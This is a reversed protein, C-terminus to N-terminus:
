GATRKFIFVEPHDFLTFTFEADEDDISWGFLTPLAQLHHVLQFGLRGAFLDRYYQRVVGHEADTLHEYLEMFTDDMVIYNALALRSEIYARKRAAPLAPDYLYRYVDLTHLRYYDVRTTQPGWGVYDRYFSPATLYSGTPPINHSPEVLISAGQPVTEQLVRSAQLRADPSRYINSYATAYGISAILVAATAVLGLRRWRPQGVLQGSLAGAAVALGPVLPLVYRIFPQISQGAVLYYALPYAAAVLALRTRRFALWALGALGWAAFMPGIGWPLLNVFWYLQPQVDRFNANWLPRAAGLQPASVQERFDQLFKDPYLWVMPDIVLFLAVGLL